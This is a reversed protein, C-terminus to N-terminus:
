TGGSSFVVLINNAPMNITERLGLGSAQAVRELDTIDRVGWSPNRAKLSADFAANSPANHIGDRVFPGYLVLLGGAGLLRAAGARDQRIARASRRNGPHKGHENKPALEREDRAGYAVCTPRAFIGRVHQETHDLRSAAQTSKRTDRALATLAKKARVSRSGPGLLPLLDSAIPMHSRPGPDEGPELGPDDPVRPCSM